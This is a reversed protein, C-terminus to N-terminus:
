KEKKLRNVFVNLIQPKTQEVTKKIFGKYPSREAYELINTLPVNKWKEGSATRTNGVYRVNKYQMKIDWSNKLSPGMKGSSPSASILANKMVESAENLAEDISSDLDQILDKVVEKLQKDLNVAM